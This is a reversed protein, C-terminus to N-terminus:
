KSLFNRRDPTNVFNTFERLGVQEAMCSIMYEKKAMKINLRQEKMRMTNNRMVQEQSHFLTELIEAQTSTLTLGQQADQQFPDDEYKQVVDSKQILKFQEYM